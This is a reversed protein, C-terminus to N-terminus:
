DATSGRSESVLVAEPFGSARLNVARIRPLSIAARPFFADVYGAAAAAECTLPSSAPLASKLLVLEDAGLVAAVRAAISDSTVSWRHELQPGSQKPEERRLFEETDFVWAGGAGTAATLEALQTALAFQPWLAVALRASVGMARICLWHAAEEGLALRQDLRRITEALDGGGVVLVNKALPQADLWAAFVGHLSEWDLLSGGLKVVRCSM